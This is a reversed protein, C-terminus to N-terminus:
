PEKHGPFPLPLPVLPTADIKGLETRREPVVCRSLLDRVAEHDKYILAVEEKRQSAVASLIIYFFALLAMNMICLAISLPWEHKLATIASRVTAGAEEVVGTM